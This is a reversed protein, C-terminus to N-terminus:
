AVKRSYPHLQTEANRRTQLAEEFSNYTGLNIRKYDKTIYTRWRGNSLKHVGAYGSTNNKNVGKNQNQINADALRLNGISNDAKNGNIHDIEGEPWEGYHKCWVVRHALYKSYMINVQIYGDKKRVFGVKSGVPWRNNLRIRRTLEGTTDDLDFMDDILNAPAKLENLKYKNRM